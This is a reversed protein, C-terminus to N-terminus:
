PRQRTSIASFIRWRAEEACGLPRSERCWREFVQGYGHLGAMEALSAIACARVMPAPDEDAAACLADEIREENRFRRLAAAACARVPVVPDRLTAILLEVVEEDCGPPLDAIALARQGADASTVRQKWGEFGTEDM